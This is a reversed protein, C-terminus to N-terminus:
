NHCNIMMEDRVMTTAVPMAALVRRLVTYEVRDEIPLMERLQVITADGRKLYHAIYRYLEADDPALKPM